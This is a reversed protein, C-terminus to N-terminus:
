AAARRVPFEIVLRDPFPGVCRLRGSVGRGRRIGGPVRLLCGVMGILHEVAIHAGLCKHLGVGFHLYHASPRDTRFTRPAEIAGHDMMAAGVGVFTLTGPAITRELPTGRSLVHARVSRRAVVPTPTHFRLAECALAHLRGADDAQAAAVGDAMVAPDSLLLDVIRCLATNVNDIMGSVCWLLNDRIRADTLDRDGADQQSLMRGLVDDRVVGAAREVRTRAILADLYARFAKSARMARRTLVPVGLVNIFADTFITRAWQALTRPDPGPVGFYDGVFLAPVVRGFDAALDLRGDPRAAEVLQTARALVITRIRDVDERHFARGLVHLQRRYETGDDMGLLFNPGRNIRMMAEGYPAVSFVDNRALVEIADRYRTVFVMSGVRLTPEHELLDDFMEHPRSVLWDRLVQLRSRDAAGGVRSAHYEQLFTMIRDDSRPCSSPDVGVAAWGSM